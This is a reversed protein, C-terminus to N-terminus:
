LLWLTWRCYRKCWGLAARRSLVASPLAVLGMGFMMLYMIAIFLVARVAQGASGHGSPPGAAAPGSVAEAGARAPGRVAGIGRDVGQDAPDCAGPDRCRHLGRRRIPACVDCLGAP